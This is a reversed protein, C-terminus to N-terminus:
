KCVTSHEKKRQGSIFPLFGFSSLSSKREKSIKLLYYIAECLLLYAKVYLRNSYEVCLEGFYITSGCM